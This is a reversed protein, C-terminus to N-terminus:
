KSEESVEKSDKGGLFGIKYLVRAVLVSLVVCVIMYLGYNIGAILLYLITSLIVIFSLRPSFKCFLVYSAGFIAPVTYSKLGVVISEPLFGIVKTGVMATLFVVTLTTILSGAVGITSVVSGEPSGFKVGAVEQAVSSAPMRIDSISGSTFAMYTGTIGLIPYYSLPEVFYYVGFSAAITGWASLAIDWTPFVGYAVKLYILPGFMFLIILAIMTMGIKSSKRRWLEEFSMNNEM